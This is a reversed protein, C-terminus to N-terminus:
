GIEQNAYQQLGREIEIPPIGRWWWGPRVQVTVSNDPTDEGLASAGALGVARAIREQAEADLDVGTVTFGFDYKAM